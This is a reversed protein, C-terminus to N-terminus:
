EELIGNHRREHVFELEIAAFRIKYRKKCNACEFASNYVSTLTCEIENGCNPCDTILDMGVCTEIESAEVRVEDFTEAQRGEAVRLM